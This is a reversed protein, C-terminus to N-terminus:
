IKTWIPYLTHVPPIKRSIQTVKVNMFPLDISFEVFVNNNKLDRYKFETNVKRKEQVGWIKIYIYTSELGQM